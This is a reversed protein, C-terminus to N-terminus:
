HDVMERAQSVFSIGQGDHVGIMVSEVVPVNVPEVSQWRVIFNAGSGGIVDHEEIFFETTELPALTSEGELYHGVLKGSTDYYDVATVVISSKTDINRISLTCALNFPRARPGHYVHSYVPVYLNQGNSLAPLRDHGIPAANQQASSGNSQPEQLAGDPGRRINSPRRPDVSEDSGCSFAALACVIVFIRVM